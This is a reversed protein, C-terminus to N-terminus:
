NKKSNCSTSSLNYTGPAFTGIPRPRFGGVVKVRSSQNIYRWTAAMTYAGDDERNLINSAEGGSSGTDDFYDVIM